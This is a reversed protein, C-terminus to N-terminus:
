ICSCRKTILCKIMFTLINFAIGHSINMSSLSKYVAFGTGLEQKSNTFIPSYLHMWNDFILIQSLILFDFFKLWLVSHFYISKKWEWIEKWLPVSCQIVPTYVCIVEFAIITVEDKTMHYKSMSGLWQSHASSGPAITKHHYSM